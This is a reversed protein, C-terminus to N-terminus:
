VQTKTDGASAPLDKVVLMVQTYILIDPLPIAPEYSVKINLRKLLAM